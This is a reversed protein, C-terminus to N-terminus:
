VAYPNVREEPEDYDDQVDPVEPTQLWGQDQLLRLAQTLTDVYDDHDVLPFSCCQTLFDRAWTIPQGPENTSEPIWVCGHHVLPSVLNARAVKDAHGPNYPKIPIQMQALDQILSIGSGKNEILVIDTKRGPALDSSKKAYPGFRAVMTSEEVVGAGYTMKFEDQVRTKLAPYSLRDEWCDLLLVSYDGEPMRFVGWVTCATPDNETKETFATDYSQIVYEFRPFAMDSPWLQFESRKFIGQEEPDLLEAYIEQRGLQTGEYKMIQKYFAKALNKKNDHTTGSSIISDPAKMLERILPYPKPTTTVIVQPHPPLRLGFMLMDWADRMKTPAWAAMEDCWAKHFQPGRLREPEEASFGSIITGNELKLESYARNYSTKTSGGLLCEEPITALLGSEGEFCTRRLDGSTPAVVAIRFDENQWGWDFVQEAGTRTKGWGRGAICLWAFWDGPRPLQNPRAKEIWGLRHDIARLKAPPLSTLDTSSLM